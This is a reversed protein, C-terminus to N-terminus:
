VKERRVHDALAGDTYEPANQIEERSVKVTVQSHDWSVRDIWETPIVVKKGPLWNRTAVEIYRIAWSDDDVLFGDVHGIDGDLAEIGYGTVEEGSRLHSDAPNAPIPYPPLEVPPLIAPIPLGGPYLASAWLYPGDGLHQRSVTLHTNIDPSNEVQKRTLSVNLRKAERDVGVISAPSILVKKDVLWGGTEVVFYRVAWNRDDFYLDEVTGLEGDVAHITLGKLSASNTLM